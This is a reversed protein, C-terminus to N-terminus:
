FSQTSWWGWVVVRNLVMRRRKCASCMPIGLFHTVAAVVDGLRIPYKRKVYVGAESLEQVMEAPPPPVMGDSVLRHLDYRGTLVVSKRQPPAVPFSIAHRTQASRGAAKATTRPPAPTQRDPLRTPTRPMPRPNDEIEEPSDVILRARCRPCELPGWFSPDIEFRLRCEPCKGQANTTPM